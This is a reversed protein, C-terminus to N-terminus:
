IGSHAVLLKDCCYDNLMSWIHLSHTRMTAARRARGWLGGGNRKGGEASEGEGM